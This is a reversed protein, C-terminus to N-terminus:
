SQLFRRVQLGNDFNTMVESTETNILVPTSGVQYKRVSALFEDPNDQRHVTIIVEDFEGKLPKKLLLKLRECRNCNDQTLMIFKTM